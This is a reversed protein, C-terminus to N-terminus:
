GSAANRVSTSRTLLARYSRPSRRLQGARPRPRQIHPHPFLFFLLVSLLISSILASSVFRVFFALRAIWDSSSLELITQKNLGRPHKYDIDELCAPQTLKANLLLRKLRLNDRYTKEDQVILGFFEQHSLDASAPHVIKDGFSRAMGFLKLANLTQLTQENLM